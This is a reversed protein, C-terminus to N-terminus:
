LAVVVRGSQLVSVVQAGQTLYRELTDETVIIQKQRPLIAKGGGLIKLAIKQEIEEQLLKIAKEKSGATRIIAYAKEVDIGQDRAFRLWVLLEQDQAIGTTISLARDCDYLLWMKRIFEPTYKDYADAHMRDGYPLKQGMLFRILERELRVSQLAMNFFRRAIHPHVDYRKGIKNQLGARTACEIVIKWIASLTLPSGVTDKRIKVPTKGQLKTVYSRFLWSDDNIPEGDRKREEMMLKIYQCTEYPIVM